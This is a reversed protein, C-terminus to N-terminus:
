DRFKFVMYSIMSVVMAHTVIGGGLALLLDDILVLLNYFFTLVLVLALLAITSTKGTTTDLFFYVFQPSKCPTWRFRMSWSFFIYFLGFLPALAMDSFRIPIGGLLGVELLTMLANANHQLLVTPKKFNTTNPNKAKLANPWLSYTVVVSVLLTLPAVTEFIFFATRLITKIYPLEELNMEDQYDDVFLTLLGNIAFSIGLLNWSISTFMFLNNVGSVDIKVGRKLKSSKLYNPTIQESGENFKYGTVSFIFGAFAVRIWGLASRSIYEPFLPTTLTAITADQDITSLAQPISAVCLLFITLCLLKSQLPPASTDPNM